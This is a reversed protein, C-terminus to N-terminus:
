AEKKYENIFYFISGITVAINGFPAFVANFVTMALTVMLLIQMILRFEKMIYTKVKTILHKVPFIFM